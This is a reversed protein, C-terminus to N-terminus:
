PPHLPLCRLSKPVLGAETRRPFSPVGAGGLAGLLAVWSLRACSCPAGFDGTRGAMDKGNGRTLQSSLQGGELSSQMNIKFIHRTFNGKSM